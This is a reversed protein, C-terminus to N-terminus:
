GWKDWKMGGKKAKLLALEANLSACASAWAAAAAAGWTRLHDQLTAPLLVV